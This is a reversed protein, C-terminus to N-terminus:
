KIAISCIKSRGSGDYPDPGNKFALHTDYFLNEYDTCTIDDKTNIHSLYDVIHCKDKDMDFIWMEAWKSSIKYYMVSLIGHYRYTTESLNVNYDVGSVFLKFALENNNRSLQSFVGEYEILHIQSNKYNKALLYQTINKFGNPGSTTLRKKKSSILKNILRIDFGGICKSIYELVADSKIDEMSQDKVRGGEKKIEIPILKNDEEVIIDGPEGYLSLRANEIFIACLLEGQGHEKDNSWTISFLVNIIKNLSDDLLNYNSKFVTYRKFITKPSIGKKVYYRFQQASIFKTINSFVEEAIKLVENDALKRKVYEVLEENDLSKNLIRDLNNTNYSYDCMFKLKKVNTEKNVNDIIETKYQLIVHNDDM